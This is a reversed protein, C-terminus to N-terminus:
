AMVGNRALAESTSGSKPGPNHSEMM